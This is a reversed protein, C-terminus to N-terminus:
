RRLPKTQSRPTLPLEITFTTGTDDVQCSLKGGHQQVIIQHSVFLGLGNGQGIPQTTFFPDFIRQRIELPIGPGNDNISLIVRDQNVAATSIKLIKSESEAAELARIANTILNMFVQNLEGPHCTVAPLDGYNKVVTIPHKHADVSKLRHDLIVLTSDLGQHVDVTKLGTEDLRSFNRLSHVIAQIRDGGNRTSQLIKPLDTRLFDLDSSQVLAQLAPTPDPCQAQYADVLDLLNQTYEQLYNLNGNIFTVPNNIEHAVGSVLQGLASMKESHVLQGQSQHLRQLQLQLEMQSIVQRGLAQLAELQEPTLARPLRDIACLTGIAHGEPTVLPTGAYFRIDPEFTVLPNTAFRKDARADPVVLPEDPNCIAHACFALDRPTETADLGVKSKFWQRHEDVLSVLAIPTGCIYAALRTLDDFAAEPGTDLVQYARLTQLREVENSPIPPTPV